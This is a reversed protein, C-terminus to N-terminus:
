YTVQVRAGSGEAAVGGWKDTAGEPPWGIKLLVGNRDQRMRLLVDSECDEGVHALEHISTKQLSFLM